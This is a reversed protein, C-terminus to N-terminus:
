KIDAGQRSQMRLNDAYLQAHNVAGELVRMVRVARDQTAHVVQGRIHRVARVMIHQVVLVLINLVVRAMIPQAALVLIHQVVQDQTAHAALVQIHQPGGPGAYAPGGPGSYCPGGPGSYGHCNCPDAFVPESCVFALLFFPITWKM